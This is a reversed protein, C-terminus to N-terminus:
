AAERLKRIRDFHVGLPSSSKVDPTVRQEHQTVITPPEIPSNLSEATTSQSPGASFSRIKNMIAEREAQESPVTTSDTNATPIAAQPARQIQIPGENLFPSSIPQFDKAM